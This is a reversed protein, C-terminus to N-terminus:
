TAASSPPMRSRSRSGQPPISSTPLPYTAHLWSKRPRGERSCSTETNYVNFDKGQKKAAELIKVVTSSHCHVFVNYGSRILRSGIGAIEEQSKEFHDLCERASALAVMRSQKLDSGLSKSNSIVFDISNRMLPENPRSDYMKKRFNELESSFSKTSKAHSGKITELLVKMSAIAINEAGQIRVSKIDNALKATRDM